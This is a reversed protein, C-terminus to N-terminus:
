AANSHFKFYLSVSVRMGQVTIWESSTNSFCTSYVRYWRNEVQVMYRTPLKAGYGSATYTLGLLHHQLPAEKCPVTVTRDCDAHYSGYQLDAAITTTTMAMFGDLSHILNPAYAGTCPRLKILNGDM